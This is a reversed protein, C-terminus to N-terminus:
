SEECQQTPVTGDNTAPLEDLVWATPNLGSARQVDEAPVIRAFLRFGDATAPETTLGSSDFTVEAFACTSTAEHVAIVSTDVPSLEDRFGEFGEAAEAALSNLLARSGSPTHTAEAVEIAAEGVLGADRTSVTADLIAEYLADLVQEVYEETILDVDQPIVDPAVTRPETTTSSTSTSTEEPISTIAAARGDDDDGGCAGLLLIAGLLGHLLRRM